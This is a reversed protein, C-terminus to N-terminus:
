NVAISNNDDVWSRSTPNQYFPIEPDINKEYDKVTGEWFKM